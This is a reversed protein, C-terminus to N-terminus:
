NTIGLWWNINLTFLRNGDIRFYTNSATQPVFQMLELTFHFNWNSMSVQVVPWLWPSILGVNDLEKQTEQLVMM